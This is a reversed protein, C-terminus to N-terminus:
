CSVSTLFTPEFHSPRNSARVLPMAALFHRLEEELGFHLRTRAVCPALAQWSATFEKATEEMLTIGVEDWKKGRWLDLKSRVLSALDWAEKLSCLESLSQTLAGAVDDGELANDVGFVRCQHFLDFCRWETFM